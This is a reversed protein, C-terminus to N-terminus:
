SNYWFHSHLLEFIQRRFSLPNPWSSSWLSDLPSNINPSLPCGLSFITLSTHIFGRCALAYSPMIHFSNRQVTAPLLQLQTRDLDAVHRDAASGCSVPHFFASNLPSVHLPDLSSTSLTQIFLSLSLCMRLIMSAKM